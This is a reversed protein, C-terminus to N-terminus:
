IEYFDTLPEFTSTPSMCLWMQVCHAHADLLGVKEKKGSKVESGNPMSIM